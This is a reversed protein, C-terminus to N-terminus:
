IRQFNRIASYTFQIGIRLAFKKLSIKSLAKIKM